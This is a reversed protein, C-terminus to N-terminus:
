RVCHIRDRLFIRFVCFICLSYLRIFFSHLRCIDNHNHILTKHIKFINTIKLRVLLDKRIDPTHILVYLMSLHM